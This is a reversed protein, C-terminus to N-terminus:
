CGMLKSVNDISRDDIGNLAALELINGLFLSPKQQQQSTFFDVDSGDKAVVFVANNNNM